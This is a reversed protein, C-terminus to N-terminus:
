RFESGVPPGNIEDGIWVVVGADWQTELGCNIESGYLRLITDLLDM